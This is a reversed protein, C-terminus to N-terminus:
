ILYGQSLMIRIKTYVRWAVRTQKWTIGYLSSSYKFREVLATVFLGLIKDRHM